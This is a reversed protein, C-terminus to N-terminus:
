CNTIDQEVYDVRHQLEDVIVKMETITNGMDDIRTNITKLEVLIDSLISELELNEM